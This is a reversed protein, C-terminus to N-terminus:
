RKDCLSLAPLIIQHGLTPTSGYKLAGIVGNNLYMEECYRKLPSFLDLIKAVSEISPVSHFGTIAGEDAVGSQELFFRLVAHTASVKSLKQANGLSLYNQTVVAYKCMLDHMVEQDSCKFVAEVLRLQYMWLEDAYGM